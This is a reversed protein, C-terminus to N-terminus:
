FLEIKAGATASSMTTASARVHHSEITKFKSLITAISQGGLEIQSERITLRNAIDAFVATKDAQSHELREIMQRVVDQYQVSSLMATIRQALVLNIDSAQSMRAQLDQQRRRSAEQLAALAEVLGIANKMGLMNEERLEDRFAITVSQQAKEIVQWVLNAAETSSGALKRVEDAVVAFGRGQEGARAAEIAANLALLNTQASIQKIIEVLKGLAGVDEIIHVFQEREARIREPLSSVFRAIDDLATASAPSDSQAHAPDTLMNVLQTCQADLDLLQEVISLASRETFQVIEVHQDSFAADLARARQLAESTESCKRHLEDRELQLLAIYALSSFFTTDLGRWKGLKLRTLLLFSAIGVGLVTLGVFVTDFLAPSLEAVAAMSARWPHSGWYILAALVSLSGLFITFFRRLRRPAKYADSNWSQELELTM